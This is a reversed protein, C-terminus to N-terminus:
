EAKALANDCARRLAGQAAKGDGKGGVYAAFPGIVAARDIFRLNVWAKWTPRTTGNDEDDCREVEGSTITFKTPKM